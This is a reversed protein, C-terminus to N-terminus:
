IVWKSILKLECLVFELFLLDRYNPMTFIVCVFPPLPIMWLDSHATPKIKVVLPIRRRPVHRRKAPVGGHLSTHVCGLLFELFMPDRDLQSCM